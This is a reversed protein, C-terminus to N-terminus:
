KETKFPVIYDDYLCAIPHNHHTHLLVIAYWANRKLFSICPKFTLLGEQDNCKTVVVPLPPKSTYRQWSRLDGGYYGNKNRVGSLFDYKANLLRRHIRLDIRRKHGGDDDGDVIVDVDDNDINEFFERRLELLAFRPMHVITKTWYAHGCVDLNDEDEDDEDRPPRRYFDSERDFWTNGFGTVTNVVSEVVDIDNPDAIRFTDHMLQDIPLRGQFHKKNCEKFRNIWKQTTGVGDGGGNKYSSATSSYHPM